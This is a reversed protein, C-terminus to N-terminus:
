KEQGNESTEEDSFLNSYGFLARIEYDLKDRGLRVFLLRPNIFVNLFSYKVRFYRRRNNQVPRKQL